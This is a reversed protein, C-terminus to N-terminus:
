LKKVILLTVDDAYPTGACWVQLDEIVGGILQHSNLGTRNLIATSIRSEGFEEDSGNPM